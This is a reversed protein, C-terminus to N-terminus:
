LCRSIGDIPRDCASLCILVRAGFPSITEVVGGGQKEFSIALM